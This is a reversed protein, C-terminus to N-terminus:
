FELELVATQQDLGFNQLVQKNLEGLFGKKGAISVSASKGKEFCPEKNEGLAYKLGLNDAVADLVGKIVTFEAGKGSLAICLKNKELVSTEQKSDIEVTKGNVRAQFVIANKLLKKGNSLMLTNRTEDTITGKEGVLSKNKSSVVKIELGILEHRTINQPSVM